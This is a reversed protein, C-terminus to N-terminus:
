ECAVASKSTDTKAKHQASNCIILIRSFSEDFCAYRKLLTEEFILLLACISETLVASVASLLVLSITVVAKGKRNFDLIVACFAAIYCQM